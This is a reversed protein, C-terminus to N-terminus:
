EKGKADTSTKIKSKIDSLSSKGKDFDDEYILFDFMVENMTQKVESKSLQDKQLSDVDHTVSKVNKEIRDLDRSIGCQKLFLFFFLIVLILSSNEKIKQIPKM